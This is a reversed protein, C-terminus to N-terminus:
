LKVYRNEKNLRTVFSHHLLERGTLGDGLQRTALLKNFVLQLQSGAYAGIAATARPGTTHRRSVACGQNGFQGFHLSVYLCQYPLVLPPETLRVQAHCRCPGISARRRGRSPAVAVAVSTRVSCQVGRALLCLLLTAHGPLRAGVERGGACLRSRLLAVADCAGRCVYM